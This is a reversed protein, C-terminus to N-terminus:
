RRRTLFFKRKFNSKKHVKNSIEHEDIDKVQLEIIEGIQNIKTEMQVGAVRHKKDDDDDGMIETKINIDKKRIKPKNHQIKEINFMKKDEKDYDDEGVTFTATSKKLLRMILSKGDKQDSSQIEDAEDKECGSEFIGYKSSNHVKKKKKGSRKDTETEVWKRKSGIRKCSEEKLKDAELKVDHPVTETEIYEVKLNNTEIKISKKKEYETDGSWKAVSKAVSKALLDQILRLGPSGMALLLKGESFL